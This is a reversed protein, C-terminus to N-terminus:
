TLSHGGTQARALAAERREASFRIFPMAAPHLHGLFVPRAKPPRYPEGRITEYQAKWTAVRRQTEDRPVNTSIGGHLQHFSGEGFLVVLDTGPRDCARRYFDLNVMGGGPLDFAPDYGGMDDFGARRLFVANSETMAMFCGDRSSGAPAGVEFLRYGNRRWDIGALLADERQKDYGESVSLQQPKPGLHWAPCTVVPDAYLGFARRGYDLLGPTVMRAGDIMVAVVEGRTMAVGTNIAAVPSPSAQDIYHYRFNPGCGRVVAEGLPEPSGNDVVLVEYEDAEIGRQYAASLTHLTRPAERNMDYVVIVVSIFPRGNTDPARSLM